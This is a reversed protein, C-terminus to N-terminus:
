AQWTEDKSAHILQLERSPNRYLIQNVIGDVLDGSRHLQQYGILDCAATCKM